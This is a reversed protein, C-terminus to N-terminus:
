ASEYRHGKAIAVIVSQVVGFEASLVKLKEGHLRRARIERAQEDTLKSLHSKSGRKERNWHEAGKNQASVNKDGLAAAGAGRGRSMMDSVNSKSDGIYLHRINACNPNDCHHCIFKGSPIGGNELVWAIRYVYEEAGNFRCTRRAGSPCPQVIWCETDSKGHRAEALWKEYAPM